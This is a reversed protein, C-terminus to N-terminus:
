TPNAAITQGSSQEQATGSPIRVMEILGHSHSVPLPQVSGGLFMSIFDVTGRLRTM